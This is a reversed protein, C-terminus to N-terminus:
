LFFIHFSWVDCRTPVQIHPSLLSLMAVASSIFAIPAKNQYSDKRMSGNCFEKSVREWVLVLAYVTLLSGASGSLIRESQVPLLIKKLAEWIM